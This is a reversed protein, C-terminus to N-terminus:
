KKGPKSAKKEEKAPAKKEEKAAKKEEKAPAKKEEKAPAKKEEKAPAKKEEKDKKVKEKEDHVKEKERERRKVEAAKVKERKALSKQKKADLQDKILKEKQKAAKAKHIHEMLLRKNKFVNGKCKMYLERYLHKDIKKADRYRMLMRRLVRQRQIWLVKTPMRANATGRRKGPGTHRGKLKAARLKRWRARSQVAVPKRIIFGDKILKRVNARSNAMAIDSTENPDLWVRNRGCKLLAAALRGQLKLGAVM